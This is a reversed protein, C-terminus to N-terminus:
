MILQCQKHIHVESLEPLSLLPELKEDDRTKRSTFSMSELKSVDASCVEWNVDVPKADEIKLQLQVHVLEDEMKVQHSRSAANRTCTPMSELIHTHKHTYFRFGVVTASIPEETSLIQEFKDIGQM